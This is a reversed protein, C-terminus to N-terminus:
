TPPGQVPPALVIAEELVPPTSTTSLPNRIRSPYNLQKSRLDNRQAEMLEDEDSGMSESDYTTRDNTYFGTSDSSADSLKVTKDKGKGKRGTTSLKTAKNRSATADENITIGKEKGRPPTNSGTKNPKTMSKALRRTRETVWSKEGFTVSEFMWISVINLALRLRQAFRHVIRRARGLEGFPGVHGNEIWRRLNLRTEYPPNCLRRTLDPEGVEETIRQSVM